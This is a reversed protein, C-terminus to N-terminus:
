EHFDSLIIYHCLNTVSQTHFVSYGRLRKPSRHELRFIFFVIFGVECPKQFVIVAGSHTESSGGNEDTGEWEV